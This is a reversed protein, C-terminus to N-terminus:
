GPSRDGVGVATRGGRDADCVRTRTACGRGRRVGADADCVRTRTACGRGRRVGLLTHSAPQRPAVTPETPGTATQRRWAGAPQGGRGRRPGWPQEDSEETQTACGQGRRVGPLTHSAPRRPAVAPQRPVVAPGTPHSPPDDPHSPPSPPVPPPKADGLKQANAWGTRTEAGPNDTARRPRRRVGEDADCMRCRTRRPDGPHSLPRRPAVAPGMPAPSRNPPEYVAGM